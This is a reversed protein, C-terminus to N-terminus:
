YYKPVVKMFIEVWQESFEVGAKQNIELLARMLPRKHLTVSSHGHTIAEFTHVIAIIKAGPSIDIGHLGNPYGSGDVLEQHHMLNQGALHSGFISRMLQSATKVHQRVLTKQKENLKDQKNLLDTPLFAMAVDHIFLSAALNVVDVPSGAAANMSLALQGIRDTRGEWFGIRTETSKALQYLFNLEQNDHSFEELWNRKIKYPQSTSPDILAIIKLLIDSTKEPKAASLEQLGNEIASYLTQNYEVQQNEKFQEMFNKAKDMLILTLDGTKNSFPIGGKRVMDLITELEQLITVMPEFSLLSTNAKVTHVTRFLDNLLITDKPTHELEVIRAECITYQELFEDYAEAFMESDIPEDLYFTTM